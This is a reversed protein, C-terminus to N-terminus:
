PLILVSPNSLQLGSAGLSAGQWVTRSGPVMAGSWPLTRTLPTPGLTGFALFALSGSDLWLPDAIGPLVTRPGPLGIAIAAFAGAEGTLEAIATTGDFSTSLAPMTTISGQIAPAFAPAPLTVTPDVRATGATGAVGVGGFATVATAGLLRLEGGHMAVGGNPPTSPLATALDSDTVQLSGGNQVIASRASFGGFGCNEVVAHSQTLDLYTTGGLNRVDRITVQECATASIFAVFGVAPMSLGEILIQGACAFCRLKASSGPTAQAWELGRVVVSKGAPVNRISSGQHSVVLAGPDALIRLGKGDVVFDAYNGPRVLLIAGDPVAATAAALSTFSTGLGNNADVIFAQAITATTMALPFLLAIPRM